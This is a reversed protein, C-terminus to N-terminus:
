LTKEIKASVVFDGLLIKTKKKTEFFSGNVVFYSNPKYFLHFPVLTKTLTFSRISFNGPVVPCTLRTGNLFTKVTHIILLSAYDTNAFIDQNCFEFKRRLIVTRKSGQKKGKTYNTIQTFTIQMVPENVTRMVFIDSNGHTKNLIVISCQVYDLNPSCRAKFFNM